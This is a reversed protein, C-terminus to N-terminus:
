LFAGDHQLFDKYGEEDGNQSQECYKSHRLWLPGSMVIGHSGDDHLAELRFHVFGDGVFVEPRLGGIDGQACCVVIQPLVQQHVFVGEVVIADEDIFVKEDGDGEADHSVDEESETGVIDILQCFVDIDHFHYFGLSKFLELEKSFFSTVRSWSHKCFIGEDVGLGDAGHPRASIPRRIPRSTETGTHSSLFKLFTVM